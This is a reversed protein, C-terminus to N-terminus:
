ALAEARAINERLREARKTKAKFTPWLNMARASERDRRRVISPHMKGGFAARDTTSPTFVHEHRTIWAELQSLESRMAPLRELLTSRTRERRANEEEVRAALRRRAVTDHRKCLLGVAAPRGCQNGRSEVWAPCTTATNVLHMNSFPLTVLAALGKHERTITETSM